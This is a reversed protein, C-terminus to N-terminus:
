PTKSVGMKRYQGTGAARFKLTVPLDVTVPTSDLLYPTYRWHSAAAMVERALAGSGRKIRVGVVVGRENITLVARVDAQVGPALVSDDYAPMELLIATGRTIKPLTEKAGKASHHVPEGESIEVVHNAASTSSPAASESSRAQLAPTGRFEYTFLGLAAAFIALIVLWGVGSGRKKRKAIAVQHTEDELQASGATSAAIVPAEKLMSRHTRDLMPSVGSAAPIATSSASAETLHETCWSKIREIREFQRRQVIRIAWDPQIRSRPEGVVAAGSGTRQPARVNPDASSSTPDQFPQVHVDAVGDENSNAVAILSDGAATPDSTRSVQSDCQLGDSARWAELWLRIQRRQEAALSVFRLGRANPTSWIVECTDILRRDGLSFDVEITATDPVPFVFHVALGNESLDILRATTKLSPVDVLIIEDHTVHVRRTARRESPMQREPLAM